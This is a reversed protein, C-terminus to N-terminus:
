IGYKNKLEKINEEGIELLTMKQQNKSATLSNLINTIDVSSMLLYILIISSPITYFFVMTLGLYIGLANVTYAQMPILKHYCNEGLLIGWWTLKISPKFKFFRFAIYHGIEHLAVM